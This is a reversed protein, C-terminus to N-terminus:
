FLFACTRFMTQEPIVGRYYYKSFFYFQSVYANLPTLKLVLRQQKPKSTIIVCYHAVRKSVQNLSLIGVQVVRSLGDTVAQDFSEIHAKTLDQVSAHQTDKLTGFGGDTLNKLSPGKPLNNWKDSYAM